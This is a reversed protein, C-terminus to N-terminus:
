KPSGHKDFHELAFLAKPVDKAFKCFQWPTMSVSMDRIDGSGFEHGIIHLLVYLSGDSDRQLYLGYGRLLQCNDDPILPTVM